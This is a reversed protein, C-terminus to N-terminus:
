VRAPSITSACLSRTSPGTLAFRRTLGRLFAISSRCASVLVLLQPRHGGVLGSDSLRGEAATRLLIYLPFLITLPAIPQLGREGRRRIENVRRAISQTTTVAQRGVRPASDQSCSMSVRSPFVSIDVDLAAQHAPWDTEATILSMAEPRLACPPRIHRSSV